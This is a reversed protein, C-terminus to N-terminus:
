SLISVSSINKDEMNDVTISILSGKKLTSITSEQGMNYILAGAPITLTLTEGTYEISEEFTTGSSAETVPVAAIAGDPIDITDKNDEKSNAADDEPMVALALEIENGTIKTVKGYLYESDAVTETNSTDDMSSASNKDPDSQQTNNGGCAALTVTLTLTTLFVLLKKM